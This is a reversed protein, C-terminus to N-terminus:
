NYEREATNRQETVATGWYVCVFWRMLNRHELCLHWVGHHTRTCILGIWDRCVLCPRRIPSRQALWESSPCPNNIDSLKYTYLDSRAPDVAASLIGSSDRSKKNESSSTIATASNQQQHIKGSLSMKLVARAALRASVFLFRLHSTSHQQMSIQSKWSACQKCQSM